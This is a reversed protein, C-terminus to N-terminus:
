DSRREGIEQFFGNCESRIILMRDRLSHGNSQQTFPSRAKAVSLLRRRPLCAEAQTNGIPLGRRPIDQECHIVGACAVLPTQDIILRPLPSVHDEFSARISMEYGIGFLLLSMSLKMAARDWIPMDRANWMMKAAMPTENGKIIVM